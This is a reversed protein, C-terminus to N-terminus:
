IQLGNISNRRHIISGSIFLHSRFAIVIQFEVNSVTTRPKQKLCCNMLEEFEADNLKARKKNTMM